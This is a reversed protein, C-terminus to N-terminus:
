ASRRERDDSARRTQMVARAKELVAEVVFDNRNRYGGVARATDVLRCEDPTVRGGVLIRDDSASETESPLNFESM